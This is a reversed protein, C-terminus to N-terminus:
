AGQCCGSYSQYFYFTTGDTRTCLNRIGSLDGGQDYHWENPGITAIGAASVVSLKNWTAAAVPPAPVAVGFAVGGTLISLLRRRGHNPKDAPPCVVPDVADEADEADENQNLERM